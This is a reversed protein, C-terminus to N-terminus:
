QQNPPRQRRRRALDFIISALGSFPGRERGRGDVSDAVGRAAWYVPIHMGTDRMNRAAAINICLGNRPRLWAWYLGTSGGGAWDSRKEAERQTNTRKECKNKHCQAVQGAYAAWKVARGSQGRADGGGRWEGCEVSGEEGERWQARIFQLSQPSQGKQIKNRQPGAMTDTKIKLQANIAYVNGGNGM